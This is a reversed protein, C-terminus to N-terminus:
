DMIRIGLSNVMRNGAGASQNLQVVGRSDAFAQDDISIVRRGSQPAEAGSNISSPAVSQALGGDDLSEPMSGFEIRFANIQQNGSGASQNVGLVGNGQSFADGRIQASADLLLHEEAIIDRTQEVKIRIEARDGIALARANVQQQDTGAAQNIMVVGSYGKGSSQIDANVAMEGLAAASGLLLGVAVAIVLNSSNM